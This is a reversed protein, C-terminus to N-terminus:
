STDYLSMWQVDTSSGGASSGRADWIGSSDATSGLVTVAHALLWGFARYRGFSLLRVGGADQAHAQVIIVAMAADGGALLEGQDATRFLGMVAHRLCHHLGKLLQLAPIAAELTDIGVLQRLNDVLGGGALCSAAKVEAGVGIHKMGNLM